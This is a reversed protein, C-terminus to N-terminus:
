TQKKREIAKMEKEQRLANDRVEVHYQFCHPIIAIQLGGPLFELSLLEASV